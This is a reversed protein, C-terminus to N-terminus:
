HPGRQGGAGLGVLMQEQARLPQAPQAARSALASPCRHIGVGVGGPLRTSGTLPLGMGSQSPAGGFLFCISWDRSCSTRSKCVCSLSCVYTIVM